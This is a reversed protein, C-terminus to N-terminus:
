PAYSIANDLIQLGTIDDVTSICDSYAICSSYEHLMQKMRCLINAATLEVGGQEESMDVTQLSVSHLLKEQEVQFIYQLNYLVSSVGNAVSVTLKIPMSQPTIALTTQVEIGHSSDNDDTKQLAAATLLPRSPEALM